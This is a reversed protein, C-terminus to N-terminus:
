FFHALVMGITLLVGFALQLQATKEDLLVSKVWQKNREAIITRANTIAIPLALLAVLGWWSVNGLLVIVVLWLFPFLVYIWVGVQAGTLMPFTQIGARRDTAIDRVNNVHLIALTILGISVTLWLVNWVIEGTVIYSTGIMPLFGYCLLIVVDGLANYKLFPYGLSLLIGAIGIYLTVPGTLFVMLLGLVIAVCNLSVSLRKFEQITFIKDVLLRTCVVDPADVGKRYDAIDSWVNGAAHVFVITVVALLGLWWQVDYGVSWLWAITVIVPMASAPFSWPRTAIIWSKVSHKM